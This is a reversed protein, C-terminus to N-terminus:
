ATPPSAAFGGTFAALLARAIAASLSRLPSPEASQSASILSMRTAQAVSRQGDDSLAGSLEDGTDHAVDAVDAVGGVVGVRGCGQGTERGVGADPRVRGEPVACRM